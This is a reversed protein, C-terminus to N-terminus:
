VECLGLSQLRVLLAWSVVGDVEGEDMLEQHSGEQVIRGANLVVIRDADVVTSLRHAVVVTTRDAAAAALADQVIRESETDLASSAEDLLLIAPDGVLARAIAIRQKQGGSLVLGREGVETDMGAPLRDIFETANALRAAHGAAARGEKGDGRDGLGYTINEAVTGMFLVPEQGVFAMRRHLYDPDIDRTDLGDVLVRGSSAEYFGELLSFLTSKGSGSPGCIAVTEGVAAAFSVGSLAPPAAARSPYSFSVDSFEVRWGGGAADPVLGGGERGSGRPTRALIAFVERGAGVSRIVNTIGDLGNACYEQLQGQYLMFAVLVAVDMQGDLVLLSGVYLLLAQVCTNILFTSIVM